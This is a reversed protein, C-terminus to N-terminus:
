NKLWRIFSTLLGEVEYKVGLIKHVEKIKGYMRMRMRM